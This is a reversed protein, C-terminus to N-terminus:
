YGASEVVTPDSSIEIGAIGRDGILENIVCLGVM